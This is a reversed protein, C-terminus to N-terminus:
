TKAVVVAFIKEAGNERLAKACENLTAGTTCVDDVLIYTNKSDLKQAPNKFSFANIVNELRKAGDLEVQPTTYRHRQLIDAIPLNWKKSLEQALLLSQNFGRFNFRRCHLPVPILFTSPLFVNNFFMGLIEAIEKSGDYKFRHILASIASNEKFETLYFVWNKYIKLNKIGAQVIIKNLCDACLHTKPKKCGVCYIPFLFNIIINLIEKIM